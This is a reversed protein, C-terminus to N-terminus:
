ASLPVSASSEIIDIHRREYFGRVSDGWISHFPNAVVVTAVDVGSPGSRWMYAQSVYNGARWLREAHILLPMMAVVTVVSALLLVRRYPKAAAVNIQVGVRACAVSAAIIVLLIWAITIPNRTSRVSIHIAGIDLHDGPWLFIAAIVLMDVILLAGLGAHLRRRGAALSTSHEQREITI